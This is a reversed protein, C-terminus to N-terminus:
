LENKGPLVKVKMNRGSVPIAKFGHLLSNSKASRVAFAHGSYSTLTTQGGIEMEANLVEKNSRNVWFINLEENSENSIEVKIPANNNWIEPLESNYLPTDLMLGAESQLYMERAQESLQIERCRRFYSLNPFKSKLYSYGRKWIEPQSPGAGFAGDGSDYNIAAKLEELGVIVKGFPREWKDKGLHPVYDGLTIFIQTERTGRGSPDNSGAFSMMGATFPISLDPDDEIATGKYENRLKDNASLGFQVIFDEIARYLATGDYYKANVLELFRDAGKPAWHPIVMIMFTGIEGTEGSGKFYQCEVMPCHVYNNECSGYVFHIFIALFAFM